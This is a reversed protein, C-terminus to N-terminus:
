VEKGNKFSHVERSLNWIMSVAKYVTSTSLAVMALQLAAYLNRGGFDLITRAVVPALFRAACALSTNWTRYVENSFDTGEKAARSGWGEAIGNSVSACGYVLGDALLLGFAGTGFDFLFIVGPEAEAAWPAGALAVVNCALFVTSETLVQRSIVASALGSFALSSLSVVTFITGSLEVSWGYSVPITSKYQRCREATGLHDELLMITSVEISATVFYREFAYFVMGRVVERRQDLELADVSLECTGRGPSRPALAFVAPGALLGGQRACQTLIMWFSMRMKPTLKGWMVMLPVHPLALGFAHVQSLLIMVWFVARKSPLSWHVASNSVVAELLMFLSALLNSWLILARALQQDWFEENVVRKGPSPM